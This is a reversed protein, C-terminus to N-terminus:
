ELGKKFKNLPESVFTRLTQRARTAEDQGFLVCAVCFVGQRFPSYRAWPHLQLWKAQFARRHQGDEVLPFQYSPPPIWPDNILLLRDQDSTAARPVGVFRGIDNALPVVVVAAAPEHQQAGQMTPPPPPQQEPEVKVQQVLPAPKFFQDIPGRKMTSVALFSVCCNLLNPYRPILRGGLCIKAFIKFNATKEELLSKYQSSTLM